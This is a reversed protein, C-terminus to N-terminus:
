SQEVVNQIYIRKTQLIVKILLHPHPPSVIIFCVISYFSHLPFITSFQM